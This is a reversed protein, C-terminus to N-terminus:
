LHRVVPTLETDPGQEWDEFTVDLTVDIVDKRVTLTYITNRKLPESITKSLEVAKGDIVADVKIVTNDASQEFVHLVGETDTSLPSDFSAVADTRTVDDPSFKGSVPFLFGSEASRSLTVRNVEAKGATRFRLDFRAAGRKLSLPIETQTNEMGDLSVSGSFFDSPRGDQLAVTTRLWQDETIDGSKLSGLDIIGDTNAIMYLTGSHSDLSVSCSGGAASLGDFIHTMKGDKFICAQLDRVTEPASSAGGEYGLFTAKVMVKGDGQSGGPPPIDTKDKTCSVTAIMAALAAMTSNIVKTKAMTKM